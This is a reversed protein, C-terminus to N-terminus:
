ASSMEGARPATGPLAPKHPRENTWGVGLNLTDIAPESGDGIRTQDALIGSTKQDIILMRTLKGARAAVPAGDGLVAV